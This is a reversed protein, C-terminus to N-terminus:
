LKEVQHTAVSRPVLLERFEAGIDAWRYESEFRARGSERLLQRLGGDSVLRTCADAFADPEDAILLDRGDVADLGEAGKSTSVVPLGRAWAELIKVRTGSGSLLPVIVVTGDDLVDSMDDLYGTM